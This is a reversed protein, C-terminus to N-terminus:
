YTFEALVQIVAALKQDLLPILIKIEDSNGSRLATEAQKATECLEVAGINAASSKMSHAHRTATAFEENNVSLILKSLIDPVDDRFIECIEHYLEEDNDIRALAAQRDLIM